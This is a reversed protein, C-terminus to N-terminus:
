YVLNFEFIDFGLSSDSDDDNGGRQAMAIEKAIKLETQRLHHQIAVAILAIVCLGGAAIGLVKPMTWTFGEDEEIEDDPYIELAM